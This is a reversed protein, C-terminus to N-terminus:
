LNMMVNKIEDFYAKDIYLNSGGLVEIRVTHSGSPMDLKHFLMKQHTENKTCLDLVTTVGDVTVKAKGTKIDATGIWEIGRGTFTYFIVAGISNSYRSSGSFDRADTVTGWSGTFSIGSAKDDVEVYSDGDMQVRFKDFYVRGESVLSTWPDLQDLVTNTNDWSNLMTKIEDLAARIDSFDKLKYFQGTAPTSFAYSGLGYQARLSNAATMLETFFKPIVYSTNSDMATFNQKNISLTYSNYASYACGDSTRIKVANAGYVGTTPPKFVIKDNNALTNSQRSFYISHDVSNYEVNNWTIYLIQGQSDADSNISIALRPKLDYLVAGNIPYVMTPTAPMNNKHVVIASAVMTSLELGDNTQIGYIYQTGRSDGNTDLGTVTYTVGSVGSAVLSWDSFTTSGSPAKKVSVTYTQTQGSDNNVAATWNLVVSSEFSYKNPNTGIYIAQTDEAPAFGTATNPLQNKYAINPTETADSKFGTTTGTIIGAAMIQFKYQTGRPDNSDMTFDYFTGTTTYGSGGDLLAYSTWSGTPTKKSYYLFYAVSQDTDPDVPSAAVWKVRINEAPKFYYRVNNSIDFTGISSPANSKTDKKGIPSESSQSGEFTTGSLTTYASVKFKYQTGQADGSIDLTYSSNTTTGCDIQASWNSSGPTLKWAYVHYGSIPQGACSATAGSWNVTIGSTGYKTALTLTTPASPPVAKRCSGGIIEASRAGLSDVAIIGFTYKTDAADAGFGYAYPSGPADYQAYYTDNKYVNVKYTVAQGEPDGNGTWSVNVSNTAYSASTSVGSPNYPAYNRYYSASWASAGSSLSGDSASTYFQFRSGRPYPTIDFTYSTGGAWYLCHNSDGLWHQTGNPEWYQGFLGYNIANGEADTSAGWSIVMSSENYTNPTTPVGPTTPASNTSAYPINGSITIGNTGCSNTDTKSYFKASTSLNGSGTGVNFSYSASTSVSDGTKFSPSSSRLKIEGSSTGNCTIVCYMDYGWYSPYSPNGGMTAGAYVTISATSGSRSIDYSDNVAITAAMDSHSWTGSSLSTAM